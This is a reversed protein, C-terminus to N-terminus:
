GKAASEKPQLRGDRTLVFETGRWTTTRRTFALVWSVFGLLDRLPLSYVARVGERDGLGWGLTLAGSLLRLAMTAVLVALGLPDGLRVMAFLLAFPVARMLVTAFYAVPRAARTNQDWYVQHTWWEGPSALNVMTDIIPTVLAERQGLACIRRGLEYDEVLYDALSGIGGVQELTSRRLAISAGLCFGSIGTEYAFIVSPMFEANLSLLEMKEFWTDVDAVKYPTCVFGVGPELLPAVVSKLYGPELRVDSDSIVLVDHRAHPLGGALNNIKGNCGLHQEDVAVRVRQEGFEAQMERLLPLAPDALRQVSFVVEFEPYDQLCTTRLNERLNKEIGHVPKLISVAPWEAPEAVAPRRRFRVTAWVCLWQFVIGGVVPLLLIWHFISLPQM